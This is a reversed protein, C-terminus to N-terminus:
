LDAGYRLLLWLGVACVLIALPLGILPSRQALAAAVLAVGAAVVALPRALGDLSM